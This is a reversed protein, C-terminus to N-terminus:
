SKKISQIRHGSDIARKITDISANIEFGILLVSSMVKTWIMFAILTGISGYVENYSNFSALYLSFLTSAVVALFTAAVSGISFFKWRKIIAPAFYYITSIAILFLFIFSAYQLFHLMFSKFGVSLYGYDIMYGITLNGIIIIVISSVLVIVLTFTLLVAIVRKRLFSRKEKTRYCKNFSNMLSIMGNTSLYTALLFGFTLLGERKKSTIDLIVETLATHMDVPMHGEMFKFLEGQLNEIPFYPILTFMFIIAPFVALVFNFAVGNAESGIGNDKAEKIFIGLVTKLDIDYKKNVKIKTLLVDIQHIVPLNSFWDKVKKM